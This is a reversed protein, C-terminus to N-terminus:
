NETISHLSTFPTESRTIVQKANRAKTLTEYGSMPSNTWAATFSSTPADEAEDDKPVGTGPGGRGPNIVDTVLSTRGTIYRKRRGFKAFITHFVELLM